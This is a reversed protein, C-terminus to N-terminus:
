HTIEPYSISATRHALFAVSAVKYENFTQLTYSIMHLDTHLMKVTTQFPMIM